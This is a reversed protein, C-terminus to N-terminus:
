LRAAADAYAKTALFPNASADSPCYTAMRVGDTNLQKVVRSTIERPELIEVDLGLRRQLEFNKHFQEVDEDTYALVLYGGQLFEIDANLEEELTKFIRVSDMALQANPETSWQQRIGGGCRGTAGSSLYESELLVCNTMGGKALYYAVAAGIIGGGIIVCDANTKM